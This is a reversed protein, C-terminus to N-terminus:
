ALVLVRGERESSSYRRERVKPYCEIRPWDAFTFFLKLCGPRQCREVTGQIECSQDGISFLGPASRYEEQFDHLGFWCLVKAMIGHM